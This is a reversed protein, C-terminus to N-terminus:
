HLVRPVSLTFQPIPADFLHGDSAIMQYSGQMTGVQTRIVAGSSYEFSAGPELMPQEGVVGDGRVEEARGDSDTIIWHRARLQVALQGLNKISVHYSFAYRNRDPLSQDALYGPKVTVQVHYPALNQPNNMSRNLGM